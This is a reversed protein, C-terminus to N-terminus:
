IEDPGIRTSEDRGALSSLVSKRWRFFRYRLDFVNKRMRRKVVESGVGYGRALKLYRSMQSWPVRHADGVLRVKQNERLIPLWDPDIWDACHHLFLQEVEEIGAMHDVVSRTVQFQKTFSDRHVRYIALPQQICAFNTRMSLIRWMLFDEYMTNLRPPGAFDLGDSFLSTRVLPTPSPIFNAPALHLNMLRAAAQDDAGFLAGISERFPDRGLPQSAMPIAPDPNISVYVDGFVLGVDPRQDMIALQRELKDPLWADDADLFAIFEGRAAYVGLNRSRATGHNCNERHRLLRVRLDQDALREIVAGTDDTSGDDIVLCELNGFSQALVSGVAEAITKGANYAPIVVSVRPTNM